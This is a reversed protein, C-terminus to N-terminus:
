EDTGDSCRRLMSRIFRMMRLSSVTFKRNTAERSACSEKSPRAQTSIAIVSTRKRSSSTHRCLSRRVDVNGAGPDANRQFGRCTREGTEPTLRYVQPDGVRYPHKGPNSVTYRVYLVDKGRTVETIRVNVHDKSDKVSRSSVAKSELMAQAVLTNAAKRVDLDGPDPKVAEPKGIGRADTEDIVFAASSVEGPSLIEYTSQTHETWM